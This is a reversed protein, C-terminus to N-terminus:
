DIATRNAREPSQMSCSSCLLFITALTMPLWGGPEPVAAADTRLGKEYGGDVFATVIDSSDFYGSGDWDGTEWVAPDGAYYLGSQLVSVLDSSNFEGDLDADGFYTGRIDHVWTTRDASNVQGDDNLDFVLDPAPAIVARSLLDIDNADLVRNDDFDGLIPQLTWVGSENSWWSYVEGHPTDLDYWDGSPRIIM